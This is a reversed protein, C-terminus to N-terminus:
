SEQYPWASQKMEKIKIMFDSLITRLIERSICQVLGLILYPSLSDKELIKNQFFVM